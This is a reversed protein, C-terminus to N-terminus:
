KPICIFEVRIGSPEYCMMHKAPGDRLLEPAFEVKINNKKLDEHVADLTEFSDVSLALHHLGVNEKRDFQSPTVSKVEWLTVM